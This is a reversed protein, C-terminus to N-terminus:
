LGWVTLKVATGNPAASQGLIGTLLSATTYKNCTVTLTKNSNSLAWSMQYSATADNVIPQISDQLIEAFLANGTSLGDDTLHFVAVGSAVVASKFVPLVANKQTTGSIAKVTANSGSAGTDGKPGQLGTDGKLGQAGADGKAGPAGPAGTMGQIGQDGKAGAAGTLGTDGKAGTAGTDGKLGQIGQVGQLGQVGQAGPSGDDGKPGAAGRLSLLWASQDGVFGQAVAVDYASKPVELEGIMEVLESITPLKPRTDTYAAAASAWTSLLTAEDIVTEATIGAMVAAFAETISQRYNWFGEFIEIIEANTVPGYDTVYDFPVIRQAAADEHLASIYRYTWEPALETVSRAGFIYPQFSKATRTERALQRLGDKNWYWVHNVLDWYMAESEPAVNVEVFGPPVPDLPPTSQFELKGTVDNVYYAM